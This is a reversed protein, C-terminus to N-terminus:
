LEFPLDEDALPESVEVPIELPVSPAKNTDNKHRGCFEMTHVLVEHVTRKNGNSDEYSRSQLEGTVLIDDGKGFYHSVFGAQKEWSVCNIFDVPRSGSQDKYGRPVAVTFTAFAKQTSTNKVEPDRTLKGMITIQNM